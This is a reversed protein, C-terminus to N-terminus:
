IPDLSCYTALHGSISRMLEKDKQIASYHYDKMFSTAVHITQIVEPVTDTEEEKIKLDSAIEGGEKNVSTDSDIGFEEGNNGTDSNDKSIGTDCDM